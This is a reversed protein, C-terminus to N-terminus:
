QGSGSAEDATMIAAGYCDSAVTQLPDAEAWRSEAM